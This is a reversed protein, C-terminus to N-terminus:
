RLTSNWVICNLLSLSAGTVSLSADGNRGTNGAVTCNLFEITEDGSGSFLAAAGVASDPVPSSVSNDLVQCNVLQIAFTKDGETSWRIGGGESGYGGIASNGSITCDVLSVDLGRSWIGGGRADDDATVSNGAIVCRVLRVDSGVLCLGGGLADSERGGHSSNGSVTCDTLSLVSDECYLGGGKTGSGDGDGSRGRVSNGSIVCDTLTPSSNVCYVGGGEEEEESWTSNASITCSVLSVGSNECYLGGGHATRNDMDGRIARNAALVCAVIRPSSGSCFVGGGSRNGRPRSLARSGQGGTLTFGELVSDSEGNEFIVVSARGGNAPRAMRITTEEAGAESRLEIDKVAPSDPDAPDHLRNFDIPETIVYEGAAVLVTDGDAAADIASQIDSYSGEDGPDVVLTAAGCLPSSAVLVALALLTKTRRM